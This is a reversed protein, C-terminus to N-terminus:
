NAPLDGRAWAARTNAAYDALTASVIADRAGQVLEQYYSLNIQSLIMAGLM